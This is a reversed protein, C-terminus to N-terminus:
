LNQKIVKQWKGKWSSLDFNEAVERGRQMFLTRLEPDECLVTLAQKLANVNPEILLGNYGGIVLDPLGGVNTAIVANGSAMGELCSLSTGESNLSPILTIDSKKYANHMDQMGLTQWDVRGPYNHILDQVAIEEDQDAQGVFTFKVRPYKELFEPVLEHVLWYGRRAYLRRPYLINIEDRNTRDIPSFEDIDVFNPIYTCKEALSPQITRLWNITNTDVSVVHSLNTFSAVLFDVARAREDVSDEHEIDWFIGHSIGISSKSHFPAALNFVMYIVPPNNPLLSHFQVNLKGIDGTTNLGYFPVGQYEREWEGHASQYVIPERDLQKLINVLEILYREAGGIFVSKGDLDFFQPALIFVQRAKTSIQVKGSFDKATAASSRIRGPKQELAPEQKPASKTNRLVSSLFAARRSGDPFLYQRANWIFEVIKWANSTRIDNLTSSLEDITREQEIVRNLVIGFSDDTRGEQSEALLQLELLYNRESLQHVQDPLLEPRNIHPQWTRGWKEEFKRRNEKFLLWYEVQDLQLFSAGGWHHIFVDEACIVKYGCDRVRMAYDDDEFMGLGFREDLLGVQRFVDRRIVVCYFALARIEFTEGRHSQTFEDAFPDLDQLHGYAVSIKAENSASNTVPGIMGISPEQLHAVLRTLWGNTVVTDNNLFVLYEGKSAEAGQNNGRAFGVNEDNLLIHINEKAISTDELYNRTGDTSDNDVIIIEYQPYRTKAFISELCQQTYELNNHTLIIISALGSFMDTM